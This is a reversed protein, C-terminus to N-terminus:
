RRITLVPCRAASVIQVGIGPALHTDAESGSRSGVVILEIEAREAENVVAQAVHRGHLTQLKIQRKSLGKRHVADVMPEFGARVGESIESTIVHLLELQGVVPHLLATALTCIKDSVHSFDTAVLIRRFQTLETSRVHPGVTVVPCDAQRQVAEATSGLILREVGTSAHTGLVVLSNHHDGLFQLIQRAPDGDEVVSIDADVGLASLRAKMAKLKADTKDRVEAIMWEVPVRYRHHAAYQFVHFITVKAHLTSAIRAVVDLSPDAAVSLDTALVLHEPLTM